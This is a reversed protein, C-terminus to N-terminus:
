GGYGHYGGWGHYGGYSHVSSGFGGRVVTGDEESQAQACTEPGAAGACSDTPRTCASALLAAAVALTTKLEVKKMGTNKNRGARNRDARGM